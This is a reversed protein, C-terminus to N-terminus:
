TLLSLIETKLMSASSTPLSRSPYLHGSEGCIKLSPIADAFIKMVWTQAPRKQNLEKKIENVVHRVQM